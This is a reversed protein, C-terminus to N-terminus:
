LRAQLDALSPTEATFPVSGTLLQYFVIGLSYIDTRHDLPKGEGQEPSTYAVTGMYM